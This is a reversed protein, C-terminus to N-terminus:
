FGLVADAELKQPVKGLSLVYRIGKIKGRILLSESESKENELQTRLREIEKLLTSEIGLWAQSQRMDPTFAVDTVPGTFVFPKM